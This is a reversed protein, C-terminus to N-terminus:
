VGSCSVIIQINRDQVEYNVVEWLGSSLYRHQTPSAVRYTLQFDSLLSM